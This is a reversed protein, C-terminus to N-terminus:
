NKIRVASPFTHLIHYRRIPTFYLNKRMWIIIEYKLEVLLSYAIGCKLVNRITSLRIKITSGSGPLYLNKIIMDPRSKELGEAWELAVKDKEAETFHIWQRRRLIALSLGEELWPRYRSLTSGESRRIWTYGVKSIAGIVGGAMLCDLNFIIDEFCVAHPVFRIGKREIFDRRYVKNWVYNLLQKKYLRNHVSQFLSYGSDDLLFDEECASVSEIGLDEWLVRVGFSCITCKRKLDLFTCAKLSVEVDFRDDFDVFAVYEGRAIDLAANRATCVGGNPKFVPIIRKDSASMADLLCRVEVDDSGDDVCIVEIDNNPSAKIGKLCEKWLEPRGYGAVIISLKVKNAM